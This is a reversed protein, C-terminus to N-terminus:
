QLSSYPTASLFRSRINKILSDFKNSINQWDNSGLLSKRAKHYAAMNEFEAVFIVEEIEGVITQWTAVPNYGHEIMLPLLERSNFSHYSELKGLPIEVTVMWFVKDGLEQAKTANSNFLVLLLVISFISCIVKM